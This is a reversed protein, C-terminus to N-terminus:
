SKLSRTYINYQYEEGEGKALHRIHKDSLKRTTIRNHDLPVCLESDWCKVAARQLHDNNESSISAVLTWGGGTSYLIYM